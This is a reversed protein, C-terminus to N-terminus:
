QTYSRVLRWAIIECLVNIDEVSLYESITSDFLINGEPPLEEDGKWLVFTVPVM